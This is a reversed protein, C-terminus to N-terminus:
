TPVRQIGSDSCDRDDLVIRVIIGDSEAAQWVFFAFNFEVGAAHMPWRMACAGDGAHALDLIHCLEGLGDHLAGIMHHQNAIAGAAESNGFAERFIQSAQFAEVDKLQRGPLSLGSHFGVAASRSCIAGINPSEGSSCISRARATSTMRSGGVPVIGQIATSAFPSTEATVVVEPREQFIGPRTPSEGIMPAPQQTSLSTPAAPEVPLPSSFM